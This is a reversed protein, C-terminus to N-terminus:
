DNAIFILQSRAQDYIDKHLGKISLIQQYFDIAKINEKKSVFYDGILLLVHPKWFTESNLLPKTIELLESETIFNLSFLVKKYILLNKSEKDFKNNALLYDFLISIEKYDTILNQNLILFFSLTSYTTDNSYILKKLIDKAIEKNENELYIKAQIYNESLVIRKKEKDELYFNFSGILIVLIAIFSYILIKNSEYFKILKSKKTVDYQAEISNEPM